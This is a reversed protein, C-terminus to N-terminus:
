KEKMEKIEEPTLTKIKDIPMPDWDVIEYDRIFFLVKQLMLGGDIIEDDYSILRIFGITVSYVDRDIEPEVKVLQVNIIQQYIISYKDAPKKVSWNNDLWNKIMEFNQEEQSSLPIKPIKVEELLEASVISFNIAVAIIWIKMIKM